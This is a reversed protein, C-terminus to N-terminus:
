VSGHEFTGSPFLVGLLEVQIGVADASNSTWIYVQVKMTSPIILDYGFYINTLVNPVFPGADTEAPGLVLRVQGYTQANTNPNLALSKVWLEMGPPVSYEFVKFGPDATLVTTNSAFNDGRRYVFKGGYPIRM